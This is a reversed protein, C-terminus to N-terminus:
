HRGATWPALPEQHRAVLKVWGGVLMRRDVSLKPALSSSVDPDFHEAERAAASSHEVWQARANKERCTDDNRTEAAPLGDAPLILRYLHQLLM